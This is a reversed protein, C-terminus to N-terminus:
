SYNLATGLACFILVTNLLQSTICIPIIPHPFLPKLCLLYAASVVPRTAEEREGNNLANSDPMGYGGSILRMGNDWYRLISFRVSDIVNNLGEMALRIAACGLLLCIQGGLAM